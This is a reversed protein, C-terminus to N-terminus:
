RRARGKSPEPKWRMATMLGGCAGDLTLAVHNDPTLTCPPEHGKTRTCRWGPHTPRDCTM